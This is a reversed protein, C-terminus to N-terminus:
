TPPIPWSISALHLSINGREVDWTKEIEDMYCHVGLPLIVPFRCRELTRNKLETESNETEFLETLKVAIQLKCISILILIDKERCVKVVYKLAITWRLHQFFVLLRYIQKLVYTCRHSNRCSKCRPHCCSSWETSLNIKTKWDHFVQVCVPLSNWEIQLEINVLQSDRCDAFDVFIIKEPHM